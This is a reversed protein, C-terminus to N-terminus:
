LGCRPPAQDPSRRPPPFADDHVVVAQKGLVTDDIEADVRIWIRTRDQRDWFEHPVFPFCLHPGLGDSESPEIIAQCLQGGSLDIDQLDIHLSDLLFHELAGRACERDGAVDQYLDRWQAFSRM